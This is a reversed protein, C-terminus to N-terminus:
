GHIAPHSLSPPFWATCCVQWHFLYALQSCQELWLRTRLTLCGGCVFAGIEDGGLMICAGKRVQQSWAVIICSLPNSSKLAFKM